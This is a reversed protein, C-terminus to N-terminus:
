GGLPVHPRGWGANGHIHRIRGTSDHPFHSGKLLRADAIFILSNIQSM